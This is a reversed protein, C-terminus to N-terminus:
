EENMFELSKLVVDKSKLIRFHGVGDLVILNSKQNESYFPQNKKHKIFQDDNCHIILSKNKMNKILAKPDIANIDIGFRREYSKLFTSIMLGSLGFEKVNDYLSDVVPILPSILCLKIDIPLQAGICASAGISHGVIGVIKHMSSLEDYVAKLVSYFFYYNSIKGESEGHAFQDFAIVSYGAEIYSDFFSSFNVSSASWGHSFLIVKESEGKKYISVKKGMVEIHSLEFDDPIIKKVNPKIPTCLIKEALKNSLGPFSKALTYSAVGLIKKKFGHSLNTGQDKFYIEKMEGRLSTYNHKKTRM